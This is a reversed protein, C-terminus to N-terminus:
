EPRRVLRSRTRLTDSPQVAPAAAIGPDIQSAYHRVIAGRERAFRKLFEIGEEFQGPGYPTRPDAIAAERIQAYERFVEEELWGCVPQGAPAPCQRESPDEVGPTGAPPGISLTVEVLARLYTARLEPSAWIKQALLNIDFNKSPPPLELDEFALDQDWVIMQSVTQEEFRYLYFNSMGLNGVLGDPQSLVNDVAIHRIYTSLDLYPALAEELQEVPANEVARALDRIPAFLAFTSENEHTRPEFRAAYWDLNSSPNAFGFPDQWHYQYLYGDDENFHRQLFLKDIVEIVGYVGAFERGSGVFVRAHSERPAPLGMRRFALMALRERLMTPDQWLNDLDLSKLGLFRQGSVYRGFDVHLGPKQGNRSTRGRVRIGANRVVHGQWEIDAPYYTNERYGERLQAWDRDNVHIWIDHLQGDDFLADAELADAAAMPSERPATSVGPLWVCVLAACLWYRIDRVRVFQKSM